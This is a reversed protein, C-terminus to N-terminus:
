PGSVAWKNRELLTSSRLTWAVGRHRLRCLRAVTCSTILIQTNPSSHTRTSLTVLVTRTVANFRITQKSRKCPSLHRARQPKQQLESLLNPLPKLKSKSNSFTPVKHVAITKKSPKSSRCYSSLHNILKITKEKGGAQLKSSRTPCSM